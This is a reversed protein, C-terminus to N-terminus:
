HIRSLFGTPGVIIELLFLDLLLVSSEPAYVLCLVM